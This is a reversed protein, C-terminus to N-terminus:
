VRATLREYLEEVSEYEDGNRGFDIVFCYHEIECFGNEDVPFHVRLLSMLAKLYYSNNYLMVGSGFILSIAEICALDHRHQLEINRIIEIFLKKFMGVENGLEERDHMGADRYDM